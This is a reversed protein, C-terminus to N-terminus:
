RRAEVDILRHSERDYPFKRVAVDGAYAFFDPTTASLNTTGKAFEAGFTKVDTVGDANSYDVRVTQRSNRSPDGLLYNHPLIQM